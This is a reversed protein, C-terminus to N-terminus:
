KTYVIDKWRLVLTEEPKLTLSRKGVRGRGSRYLLEPSGYGQALRLRLPRTGKNVVVGIRDPGAQMQRSLLGSQPRTIRFPIGYGAPLCDQYFAALAKMAGDKCGLDILSPIWVATGNGLRHRCAYVGADDQLLAEAESLRLSGQWLHTKLASGALPACPGTVRVEEVAAGFVRTYPWRGMWACGMREDYYGTLGTAIVTGGGEVFSELLPAYHDPLCVLHPLVLVKGEPSSWDYRDMREIGPTVGLSALAGYAAAVSNIVARPGRGEDKSGSVANCKQIWLSEDNYLITVPSVVPQASSFLAEHEQICAATEAAALMRDSPEDFYNLLGWEGAESVAKRPNLTWFMLGSAGAAFSIWLSQTVEERTPCLVVNGSATVGGGQFETVWFPKERAGSRVLDAMISVGLPYEERRFSGFHWSFHMSSGLSTIAPDLAQFDYEPLTDFIQHPNIHRGHVPDLAKVRDAIWNLYWATYSVLFEQGSFDATLYGDRAREPHSATWEALCKDSLDTPKVATAGTGPENQLVWTDLAPADKFHGVVRDIYLAIEELHKQSRPFKFGGVDTREDTPPFLTAFLRIHHRHAADFAQDYLSFDWSGDDKLLHSGFMRIRAYGFGNEELLSFWRDIQEPTQGPEIFVQAGIVPAAAYTQVCPTVSLALFLTLISFKKM